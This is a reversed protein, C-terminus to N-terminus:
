QEILRWGEKQLCRDIAKMTILQGSQQVRPDQLVSAQCKNYDATYEDATKNPHVWETTMCSSILVGMAGMLVIGSLSGSRSKM